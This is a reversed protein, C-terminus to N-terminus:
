ILERERKTGPTLPIVAMTLRSICVLEGIDNTIKIEWVQTRIGIHLPTAKGYVFGEKVGKVHNANIDLGLAVHTERNLFLNAAMSGIQEALVCSVGGHLYGLSQRTRENVPMKAVLFDPGTETFEIGLFDAITNKIYDNLQLPTPRILFDM